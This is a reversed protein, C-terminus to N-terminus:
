SFKQLWVSINGLNMKKVNKKWIHVSPTKANKCINQLNETFIKYIEELKQM